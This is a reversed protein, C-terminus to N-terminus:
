SFAIIQDAAFDGLAKEAEAPMEKRMIGVSLGRELQRIYAYRERQDVPAFDRVSIPECCDKGKLAECIPNLIVIHICPPSCHPPGDVIM